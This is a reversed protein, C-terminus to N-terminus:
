ATVVVLKFRILLGPCTVDDTVIMRRAMPWKRNTAKPVLDIDRVTEWINQGLGRTSM